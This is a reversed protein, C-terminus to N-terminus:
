PTSPKVEQFEVGHLRLLDLGGTPGATTPLHYREIHNTSGCVTNLEVGEYQEKTAATPEILYVEDVHGSILATGAVAVIDKSPHKNSLYKFTVQQDGEIVTDCLIRQRNTATGSKNYVSVTTATDTASVGSFYILKGDKNIGIPLNKFHLHDVLPSTGSTAVTTATADNITDIACLYGGNSCISTYKSLGNGYAFVSGGAFQIM